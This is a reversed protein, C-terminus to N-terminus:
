HWLWTSLLWCSMFHWLQSWGSTYLFQGHNPFVLSFQNEASCGPFISMLFSYTSRATSYKITIGRPKCEVLSRMGFLSQWSYQFLPPSESVWQKNSNLQFFCPPFNWQNLTAKTWWAPLVHCHISVARWKRFFMVPHSWPRVIVKRTLECRWFNWLKRLWTGSTRSFLPGLYVRSFLQFGFWLVLKSQTTM